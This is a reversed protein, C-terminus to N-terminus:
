ILRALDPPREGIPVPDAVPDPLKPSEFNLLFLYFIDCLSRPKKLKSNDFDLDALLSSLDKELSSLLSTLSRDPSSNPAKRPDSTSFAVSPILLDRLKALKALMVSDLISVVGLLKMSSM